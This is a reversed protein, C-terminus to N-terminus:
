YEDSMKQFVTLATSKRLAPWMHHINYLMRVLFSLSPGHLVCTYPVPCSARMYGTLELCILGREVRGGVGVGVEWQSWRTQFLLPFSYPGASGLGGGWGCVVPATSWDPLSTPARDVVLTQYATDDDEEFSMGVCEWAWEWERALHLCPNTKVKIECKPPVTM